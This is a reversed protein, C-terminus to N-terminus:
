DPAVDTDFVPAGPLADDTHVRFYSFSNHAGHPATGALAAGLGSAGGSGGVSAPSGPVSGAAGASGWVPVEGDTITAATLVGPIVAEEASLGTAHAAPFRISSPSSSPTSAGSQSAGPAAPIVVSGPVIGAPIGGIPFVSGPLSVPSPVLIETVADVAGTPLQPLLPVTAPASGVLDSVAGDLGGAVSDLASDAGTEEVLSGLVPVETVIDTVPAVVASVLGADAVEAVAGTAADVTATAVTDVHVVAQNVIAPAQTVVQAVPAAVPEPIPAVVPTAVPAVAQVTGTLVEDVTDTVGGVVDGASGVVSGVTGLLGSGDREEASASSSPAFLSFVCWAVGLLLALLAVRVARKRAAEIEVDM